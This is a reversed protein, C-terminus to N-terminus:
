RIEKLRELLRLHFQVANGIGAASIKDITDHDTHYYPPSNMLCFSKPGGCTVFLDAICADRTAPAVTMLGSQRVLAPLLARVEPWGGDGLFAVRQNNLPRPWGAGRGEESDLADLHELLFLQRVRRFRRPDRAVWARMGAAQDHHASLGLFWFDPRRANKPLRSLERALGVMTAIGSANDCAGGFFSDIHCMIGLAYDGSGPLFGVTNWGEHRDRPAYSISASVVGSEVAGDVADVSFCPIPRRGDPYRDDKVAYPKDVPVVSKWRGSPPTALSFLLGAAGHEVARQYLLKERVINQATSATTRTRVFAWKGRLDSWDQRDPDAPALSARVPRDPFRAEFPAPMATELKRGDLHVEWDGARHAHFPFKEVSSAALFPRLQDALATASDHEAASGGIRGWIKASGKHRVAIDVHVRAVERLDPPVALAAASLLFDRRRM